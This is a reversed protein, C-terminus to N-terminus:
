AEVYHFLPREKLGADTAQRRADEITTAHGWLRGQSLALWEGPFEAAHEAIWTFDPRRDIRSVAKRPLVRPPGILRQIRALREDGPFLRVCREAAKRAEHVAELGHLKLILDAIGNADGLTIRADIECRVAEIENPPPPLAGLSAAARLDAALKVSVPREPTVTTM